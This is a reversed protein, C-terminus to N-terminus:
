LNCALNTSCICPATVAICPTSCPSSCGTYTYVYKYLRQPPPAYPNMPTNIPTPTHLSILTSQPSASGSCVQLCAGKGALAQSDKFKCTTASCSSAAARTSSLKATVEKNLAIGSAALFRPPQCLDVRSRIVLLSSQTNVYIVVLCQLTAPSQLGACFYCRLAVRLTCVCSLVLPRLM